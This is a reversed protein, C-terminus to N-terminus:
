DRRMANCMSQQLLLAELIPTLLPSERQMMQVLDASTIELLEVETRARATAGRIGGPVLAQEGLSQGEGVTAFVVGSKTDLLEVTGTQIYFLRDAPEGANFIHHGAAVKSAQFDAIM